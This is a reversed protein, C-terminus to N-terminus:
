WSQRGHRVPETRAKGGAQEHANIPLSTGLFRKRSCSNDFSGSVPFRRWSRHKRLTLRSQLRSQRSPGHAKWAFTGRAGGGCWVLDSASTRPASQLVHMAAPVFCGGGCASVATVTDTLSRMRSPKSAGGGRGPTGTGPAAPQPAPCPGPLHLTAQGTLRPSPVFTLCGLDHHSFASGNQLGYSDGLHPCPGKVPLLKTRPWLM